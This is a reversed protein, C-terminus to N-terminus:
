RTEKVCYISVEEFGCRRYLNRAPNTTNVELSVKCCGLERALAEVTIILKRGIGLNRYDPKVALDHLNLIPKASFSSFSLVCTAIGVPRDQIYAVLSKVSPHMRIAGPLDHLVAPDLPQGTVDVAYM